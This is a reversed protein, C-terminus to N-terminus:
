ITQGHDLIWKISRRMGEELNIQPNYGLEAQALDIKCAINKNMESLVHFKQHYLGFGQLTSDVIYAVDSALSPLHMRKHSCKINFDNELVREVTDVIENMTYPREDAIWYTKGKAQELHTCLLLGQCINDIYAMSRLNEGSGVIPMKGNKIMSFFMTQRPPQRPGYFWPPRIIVTELNSKRGAANVLEEAMMKSRGYHMYPNYPSQEDFIDAAKSSNNCGIPSNSSVYIFRKCGAKIAATLLRKTGEFNVDYFEKRSRSPHIVGAVHFVTAGGAGETLAELGEGNTLDGKIVSLNSGLEALEGTDGAKLCLARVARAQPKLLSPNLTTTHGATKSEPLGNLLAQVLNSGLWGPVGTVIALNLALETM